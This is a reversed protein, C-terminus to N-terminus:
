YLFPSCSSLEMSHALWNGAAKGVRALIDPQDSFATQLHEVVDYYYDLRDGDDLSLLTSADKPTLNYDSKDVLTNVCDDSLM